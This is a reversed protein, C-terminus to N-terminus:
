DKNLGQKRALSAAKATLEQWHSEGRANLNSWSNASLLTQAVCKRLALMERAPRGRWV